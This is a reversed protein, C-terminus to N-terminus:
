NIEHPLINYYFLLHKHQMTKLKLIVFSYNENNNYRNNKLNMTQTIILYNM